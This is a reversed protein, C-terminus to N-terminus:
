VSPKSIEEATYGIEDNVLEGKWLVSPCSCLEAFSKVVKYCPDSKRCNGIVHEEHGDSVKVSCGKGDTMEALM